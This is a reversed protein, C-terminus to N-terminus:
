NNRALEWVSLAEDMDQYVIAGFQQAWPHALFGDLAEDPLTQVAGALRVNADDRLWEDFVWVAHGFGGVLLISVPQEKNVSM